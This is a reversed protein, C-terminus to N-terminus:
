IIWRGQVLRYGLPGHDVLMENGKLSTSILRGGTHQDLEAVFHFAEIVNGTKIISEDFAPQGSGICLYNVNPANSVLDEGYEWVSICKWVAYPRTIPWLFPYHASCQFLAVVENTAVIFQSDGWNYPGRLNPIEQIKCDLQWGILHAMMRTAAYYNGSGGAIFHSTRFLKLNNFNYGTITGDDLETSQTDAWLTKTSSDFVVTTM